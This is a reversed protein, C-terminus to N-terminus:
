VAARFAVIDLEGAGDKLLYGNGRRQVYSGTERVHVSPELLRRLAGVYNHIVNM